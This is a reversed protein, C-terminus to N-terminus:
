NQGGKNNLINDLKSNDLSISQKIINDDKSIDIIIKNNGLLENMADLYYREKVIEKNNIYEEYLANFQAVSAKADAVVEAKYGKADETLKIAEAEAQPVITNKYKVAEEIKGNKYQNANEKQESATQVSPLLQINQTDVREITLGSQYDNMKQQLQPFIESDLKQKQTRTEELTYEQITDRLIQELVLRLTGEIDDVKYLYNVPDNVKYQIAMNILAISANNNSADVIVTAEEPVDQYVPESKETGEKIARYGYEMKHVKQVDVIQVQDIYPVKFHIGATEIVSQVKGLRLVVAQKGSDFKYVGQFITLVGLAIILGLVIAGRGNKKFNNMDLKSDIDIVNEENNDINM